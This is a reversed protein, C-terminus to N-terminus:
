CCCCGVGGSPELKLVIGEENAAIPAGAPFGTGSNPLDDGAVNLIQYFAQRCCSDLL